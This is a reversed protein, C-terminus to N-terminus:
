ELDEDDDADEDDSDDDADEDEPDEDDSDDDDLDDLDDIDDLDELEEDEEKAKQQQRRALLSRENYLALDKVAEQSDLSINPFLLAMAEALSEPDYKLEGPKGLLAPCIKSNWENWDFTKESGKLQLYLQKELLEKAAYYLSTEANQNRLKLVVKYKKHVLSRIRKAIDVASVEEKTTDAKAKAKSSTTATTAKAKSSTAEVKGNAKSSAPKSSTADAKGNTKGNTKTKSSTTTM